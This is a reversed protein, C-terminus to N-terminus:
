SSINNQARGTDAFSWVGQTIESCLVDFFHDIFLHAVSMLSM